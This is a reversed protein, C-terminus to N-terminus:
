TMLDAVLRSPAALPTGTLAYRRVMLRPRPSASETPDEPGFPLFFFRFSFWLCFNVFNLTSNSAHDARKRILVRTRKTLDAPQYMTSRVPPNRSLCGIWKLLCRWAMHLAPVENRRPGRHLLGDWGVPLDYRPQGQRLVEFPSVNCIGNSFGISGRM